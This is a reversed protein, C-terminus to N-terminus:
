IQAFMQLFGFNGFIFLLLENLLYKRAFVDLTKDLKLM